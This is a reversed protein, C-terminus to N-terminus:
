VIQQCADKFHKFLLKDAKALKRYQKAREYITAVTRLQGKGASINYVHQVIKKFEIMEPSDPEQPPAPYGSGILFMGVSSFTISKSPQTYEVRSYFQELELSRCGAKLMAPLKETGVIVLGISARERIGNLINFDTLRLYNVQDIIFLEIGSDILTSIIQRRLETISKSLTVGGISILIEELLAKRSVTGDPVEYYATNPTKNVFTKAATSKGTGPKGHIMGMSVTDLCEKCLNQLALYNETKQVKVKKRTKKQM